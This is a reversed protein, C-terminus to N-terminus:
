PYAIKYLEAMKQQAAKHGPRSGNLYDQMFDSKPDGQLRNIEAQAAEPSLTFGTNGGGSVLTDEGMMAGIDSLMGIIGPHNTLGADELAKWADARDFAEFVNKAHNVRQSYADGFETKIALEADAKAKARAAKGGELTNFTEADSWQVIAELQAQTLNNKFAVERLSKQLNEPLAVKLEKPLQYKDANEPRGLKGWVETYDGSKPLKFLLNKDGGLMSELNLHSKLLGGLDKYQQFSPNGRYEEPLTNLFAENEGAM